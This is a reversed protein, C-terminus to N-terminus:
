WGIRIDSDTLKRRLDTIEATSLGRYDTLVGISCKSFVEQLEDVIKVKEERPM